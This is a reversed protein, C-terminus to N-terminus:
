RRALGLSIRRAADVLLEGLELCKEENVREVPASISIAAFPGGQGDRIAAGVGNEGPWNTQFTVAFGRQRTETLEERLRVPDTETRNTVRRLPHSLYDDLEPESLMALIAKGLSTAHMPGAQWLPWAHVAPNLGDLREVLAIKRQHRVALYISESTRRRLEEMVPIAATRLKHTAFDARGVALGAQLSLSWAGREGVVAEIWGAQELARLTRQVTSKPLDLARALESVGAPQRRGIVEIVALATQVPRM